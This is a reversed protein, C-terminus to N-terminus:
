KTLVDNCIEGVKNGALAGASFSVYPNKTVVATGLGVAGDAAYSAAACVGFAAKDRVPANSPSFKSPDHPNGRQGDGVSLRTAILEIQPRFIRM